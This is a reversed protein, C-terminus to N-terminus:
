NIAGLEAAIELLEEPRPQNWGGGRTLEAYFNLFVFCAVPSKWDGAEIRSKVANMGKKGEISELYQELLQNRTEDSIESLEGLLEDNKRKVWESRWRELRKPIEDKEAKAKKKRADEIEIDVGAKIKPLVHKLWAAGSRVPAYTIPMKKRKELEVLGRRFLDDGFENIIDEVESQSLGLKMGSSILTLDVPLPNGAFEKLNTSKIKKEVQFQIAEVTKRDKISKHVILSVSIDSNQNIQAIAKDIIDRKFFRYDGKKHEKAPNGTLVPYWWEWPQKSTLQKPNDKYRMCIEYLAMSPHSSFKNLMVRNLIAYRDPSLIYQRLQPDFSFRVTVAKTKQNKIINAGSVLVSRGWVITEDPTPSQWSVHTESLQKLANKIIKTDNSDFEISSVIEHLPYEHIDKQEYELQAKGVLVTFIKRAVLSIPNNLPVLALMNVHKRILGGTTTSPKSILEKTLIETMLSLYVM